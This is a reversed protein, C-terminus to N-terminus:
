LENERNEKKRRRWRGAFVAEEVAPLGLCLINMIISDWPGPNTLNCASVALNLSHRLTLRVEERHNEPGDPFRLLLPNYSGSRRDEQLDDWADVLYIWRGVHYLMQELTRNQPEEGTDPAAASLIRAFTDATRDLSPSRTNELVHLEELCDATKRDFDPRRLAAKRYAPRLMWSLFRAPLGRWFRHDAVNDRLKWYTLIVSEDAAIDLGPSPPCVKKGRLPCAVCRRRELRREEGPHALVMALFAFDYNLFLRPFFGYRRGLTHCLGCYIGQYADLERVKLEGRLPIVYGFM